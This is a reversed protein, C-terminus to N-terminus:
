KAIDTDDSIRSTTRTERSHGYDPNEKGLAPRKRDPNEKGLGTRTKLVTVRAHKINKRAYSAAYRAAEILTFHKWDNTPPAGDHRPKYTLRFLNPRRYERNGARGHEIRAFGLAAIERQAAAIMNRDGIGYARFQDFTIPLKGNDQGGHAALEIEIRALMRHGSLSLARFAPSALMEILRAAFQGGISNRKREGPKGATRPPRRAASM